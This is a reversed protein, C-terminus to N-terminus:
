REEKRENTFCIFILHSATNHTPKNKVDINVEAASKTINRSKNPLKSFTFM